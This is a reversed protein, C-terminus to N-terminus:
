DKQTNVTTKYKYECDRSMDGNKSVIKYSGSMVGTEKDFDANFNQVKMGIYDGPNAVFDKETADDEPADDKAEVYLIGEEDLVFHGYGTLASFSTSRIYLTGGSNEAADAHRAIGKLAADITDELLQSNSSFLLKNYAKVSANVGAVLGATMLVIIICTILTEVLTFGKKRNEKKMM